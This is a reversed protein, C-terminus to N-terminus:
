FLQTLAGAVLMLSTFAVGSLAGTPEPEKFYAFDIKKKDFAKEEGRKGAWAAINYEAYTLVIDEVDATNFPRSM